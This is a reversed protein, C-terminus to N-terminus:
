GQSDLARGFTRAQGYPRWSRSALRGCPRRVTVSLQGYAHCSTVILVLIVAASTSAAPRVSAPHLLERGAAVGGLAARLAAGPAVAAACWGALAAARAASNFAAPTGTRCRIM